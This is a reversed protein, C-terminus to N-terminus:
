LAIEAYVENGSGIYEIRRCLKRVLAIGRGSRTSSASLEAVSHSGFAFGDGSDRLRITVRDEGDVRLQKVVLHIEGATLDDLRQQRLQFYQEFGDPQEKILSPLELIGHDLANVFLETLVIFFNGGIERSLGMKHSWEAVMPVIDVHKLQTASLLADLHWNNENSTISCLRSASDEREVIMELPCDLLTFSVDDHPKEMCLFAYFDQQLRALRQPPPVSALIERVRDLGYQEKRGAEILGDSFLALQLDQNYRLFETSASFREAELIGLPLHRSKFSRVVAGRTDIALVPPTGGNWVEILDAQPRVAVLTLAVFREVPCFSRVQRNMEEVITSVNFGKGAMAYFVNTVPILTVAASLGHGTADALMLYIVGNEAQASLVIDGSAGRVAENWVQLRPHLEGDRRVLRAMIHETLSLEEEAYDRYGRLEEHQRDMESQMDAVRQFARIKAALIQPNVPKFVYDDCGADLARVLSEQNDDASIMIIPVWREGSLRRIEVTADLGDLGPMLRDMLVIDPAHLRFSAVAELGDVAEIVDHGLAEIVERLLERLYSADDAVLITLRGSM